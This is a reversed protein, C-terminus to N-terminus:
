VFHKITVLRCLRIFEESTLDSKGANISTLVWQLNDITNLGGKCKPIIHDLSANQGVILQEGTYFCKGEQKDWLKKIAEVNSTAGTIQSSKQLWWCTECNTIGPIAIGTACNGCLGKSRRSARRDKWSANRKQLCFDCYISGNKRITPRNNPCSICLGFKKREDNKSKQYSTQQEVVDNNQKEIV